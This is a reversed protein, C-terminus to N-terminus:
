IKRLRTDGGSVVSRFPICVLPVGFLYTGKEQRRLGLGFSM